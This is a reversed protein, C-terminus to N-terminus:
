KVANIIAIEQSFHRSLESNELEKQRGAGTAIIFIEHEMEMAIFAISGDM